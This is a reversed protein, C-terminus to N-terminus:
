VIPIMLMIRGPLLDHELANEEWILNPSTNYHKAIEWVSEGEGAYYLFLRNSEKRKKTNEDLQIEGIANRRITRYVSGGLAIEVRMDIREKGQLSYDTSLIDFDPDFMIGEGGETLTIRHTMSAQQEFYMGEGDNMKALISVMLETEVEMVAGDMVWKSGTPQCWADMISGINEPLELSIKQLATEKVIDVLKQFAVPRVQGSCEFDTSYCDSAVPIEKNVHTTVSARLGAELRFNKYEGAEDAVPSVSCEGVNVRVHCRSDETVGDCDIIQSVPLNYKMIELEESEVPHYSVHLLLEGKLVIKGAVTKHDLLNVKAESRIISGIPPKGYGCELEEQISFPTETRKQIETVGVMDRRLQIGGGSAGSIVTEQRCSIVKVQLTLAGRIDIRRQNVARCNVYDLKPIIRVIPAEPAERLDINKTFPLKYETRRIASGGSSYYVHATSVGEATLRNGSVQNSHIHVSVSCKLIKVIDPCYDPLLADCEIPQEVAGDYIVDSIAVQQRQLNLEM